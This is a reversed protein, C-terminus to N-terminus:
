WLESPWILNKYYFGAGLFPSLLSNVAGLDFDVSPWRNQSKATLGSYNIPKGAEICLAHALEEAREQFRTVCHQLVAQREYAALRRMPGEAAAALEIGRGIADADALAVKTALSGDFKNRVELGQNPQVAENGLYYPYADRLV